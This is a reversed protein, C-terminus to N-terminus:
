LAGFTATFVRSPAASLCVAIANKERFSERGLSGHMVFVDNNTRKVDFAGTGHNESVARLLYLSEGDQCYLGHVGLSEAQEPEMPIYAEVNLLREFTSRHTVPVERWKARAIETYSGHTSDPPSLWQDGAGVAFAL